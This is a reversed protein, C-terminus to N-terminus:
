KDLSEKYNVILCRLILEPVCDGTILQHFCLSHPLWAQGFMISVSFSTIDEIERIEASVELEPWLSPM